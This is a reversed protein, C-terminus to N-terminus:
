RARGEDEPEEDPDPFLAVRGAMWMLSFVVALALLAVFASAYVPNLEVLNLPTGREHAVEDLYAIVDAVESSSIQEEAFRPMQFPGVRIAEAIVAPDRGSVQPTIAGGGAVGGAGTYGHCQACNTAFVERGRAPDADAGVEPLGGELDFREDLYTVLIERDTSSWEVPGEGSGNPNAPPMRGTRLVLDVMALPMGRLPPAETVGTFGGRGESGHCRACHVSYAEAARTVEADTLERTQATADGRALLALGTVAVIALGLWALVPRLATM